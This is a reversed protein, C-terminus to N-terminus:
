ECKEVDYLDIMQQGTIKWYGGQPAVVARYWVGLRPPYHSAITDVARWFEVPPLRGFWGNRPPHFIFRASPAVCVDEAGLWMTCASEALGVIRVPRTEAAIRAAFTDVRGGECHEITLVSAAILAAAIM